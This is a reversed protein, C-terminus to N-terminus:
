VGWFRDNTLTKTSAIKLREPLTTTRALSPM